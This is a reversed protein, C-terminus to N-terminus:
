NLHRIKCLYGCEGPQILFAGDRVDTWPRPPVLMPVATTAMNIEGQSALHAKFLKCVLPHPKIIGVKKSDRFDYSHYFAPLFKEPKATFMNVNVKVSKLLFDILACGTQSPVHKYTCCFPNYLVKAMPNM